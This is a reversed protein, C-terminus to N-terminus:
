QRGLSKLFEPELFEQQKPEYLRQLEKTKREQELNKKREQESKVQAYYQSYSEIMKKAAQLDSIKANIEKQKVKSKLPTGRKGIALYDERSKIKKDILDTLSLHHIEGSIVEPTKIDPDAGWLLLFKVTDWDEAKVAQTLVPLGPPFFPWPHSYNINAGKEILKKMIAFYIPKTNTQAKHALIASWALQLPWHDSSKDFYNVLLKQNKPELSNLITNVKELNGESIAAFFTNIFTQFAEMKIKKSAQQKEASEEIEPSKRKGREEMEMEMPYAFPGVLCLGILIGLIKLHSNM